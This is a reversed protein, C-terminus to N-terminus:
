RRKLEADIATITIEALANQNSLGIPVHMAVSVWQTLNPKIEPHQAIAEVIQLAIHDTVGKSCSLDYNEVGALVFHCNQWYFEMAEYSTLQRVVVRYHPKDSYAQIAADVQALYAEVTDLVAGARPLGLRRMNAYTTRRVDVGQWQSAHLFDVLIPWCETECSKKSSLFDLSRKSAAAVQTYSDIKQNTSLISNEMEKKLDYLLKTEQNDFSQAENWNSVQLGVFVGVVVILFDVGVAFWNEKEIHAKVHRFIM